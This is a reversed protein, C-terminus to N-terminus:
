GITISEETYYASAAPRNIWISVLTFAGQFTELTYVFMNHRVVASVLASIVAGFLLVKWGRENLFLRWHKGLYIKVQTLRSVTATSM